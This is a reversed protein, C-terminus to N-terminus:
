CSRRRSTAAINLGSPTSLQGNLKQLNADLSSESTGRKMATLGHITTQTESMQAM